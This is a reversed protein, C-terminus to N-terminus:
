ILSADVAAIRVFKKGLRAIQPSYSKLLLAWAEIMQELNRQSLANSLTNRAPIFGLARRADQSEKVARVLGRQTPDKLMQYFVLAKLLRSGPLAARRSEYPDPDFVSQTKVRDIASLLLSVLTLSESTIPKLHAFGGRM